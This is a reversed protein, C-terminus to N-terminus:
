LTSNAKELTAVAWNSANHCDSMDPHTSADQWRKRREANPAHPHNDPLECMWKILAPDIAGQCLFHDIIQCDPVLMAAKKLSDQAHQSDPDAGLTGFLAIHTSKITQMYEKAKADATGKDVWFGMFILDYETPEPANEVNYLEADPLEKYIAEAIKRTNGTKSSVIISVKM